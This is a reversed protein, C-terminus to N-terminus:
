TDLILNWYLPDFHWAPPAKTIAEQVNAIFASRPMEAAGLTALHATNQQCDIAAVGQARCFGVLAALALKSADSRHAFMSEGFVAQGIAVCYLGGVLEGEVWTEVSHAYGARHLAQYAAVMEPLIWTGGQGKRGTHACADIVRDFASDFRIACRPDSRFRLLTKKLSRHLRFNALQLVMRPETSWWLIPQGRSYWPFIGKSYARVLSAVDLSGGAALLGPADSNVPWAQAVDPFPEGPELWALAPQQSM